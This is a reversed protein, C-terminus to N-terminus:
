MMIETNALFAVFCSFHNSSECLWSEALPLPRCEDGHAMYKEEFQPPHSTPAWLSPPPPVHVRERKRQSNVKSNSPHIVPRKSWEKSEFLFSNLTVQTDCYNFTFLLSSHCDFCTSESFEHFFNKKEESFEISKYSQQEFFVVLVNSAFSRKLDFCNHDRYELSKM